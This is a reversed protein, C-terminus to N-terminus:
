KDSILDTTSVNEFSPLQPHPALAVPQLTVMAFISLARRAVLQFNHRKVELLQSQLSLLPVLGWRVNGNAFRLSPDIQSVKYTSSIGVVSNFRLSHQTFYAEASDFTSKMCRAM